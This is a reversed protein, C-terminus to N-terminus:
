KEDEELVKKWSAKIPLSGDGAKTDENEAMRRLQKLIPEDFVPSSMRPM